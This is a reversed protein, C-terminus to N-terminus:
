LTPFPTPPPSPVAHCRHIWDERHLMRTEVNAQDRMLMTEEKERIQDQVRNLNERKRDLRAQRVFDQARRREVEVSSLTTKAAPSFGRAGADSPAGEKKAQRCVTRLINEDVHQPAFSKQFRASEDLKAASMQPMNKFPGQWDGQHFQSFWAAQGKGGRRAAAWDQLIQSPVGKPRAKQQREQDISTYPQNSEMFFQQFDPFAVHGDQNIDCAKVIDQAQEESLELGFQAFGEILGEPSLVGTKEMDLARFARQLSDGTKAGIKAMVEHILPGVKKQYIKARARFEELNKEDLKTEEVDLAVSRKFGRNALDLEIGRKVAAAEILAVPDFRDRGYANSALTIWEIEEDTLKLKKMSELATRLEAPNVMRMSRTSAKSLNQLFDDRYKFLRTMLDSEALATMAKHSEEKVNGPRLEDIFSGFRDVFEGYSIEQDGNIDGAWM